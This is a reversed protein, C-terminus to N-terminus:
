IAEGPVDGMEEDSAPDCGPMTSRIADALKGDKKAKEYADLARWHLEPEKQRLARYSRLVSEVGAAQQAVWDGTRKPNEVLFATIGFVHQLFLSRGHRGGDDERLADLPSECTRVQIDPIEVIWQILWKRDADGRAALPTKELRRTIEVARKREAATSPGRPSPAEQAPAPSALSTAVLVAVVALTRNV